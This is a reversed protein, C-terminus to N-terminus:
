SDRPSPYTYLLCSELLQLTEPLDLLGSQLAPLLAGRWLSKGHLEHADVAAYGVSKVASLYLRMVGMMETRRQLLPAAKAGDGSIFSGSRELLTVARNLIRSVFRFSDIQTRNYSM